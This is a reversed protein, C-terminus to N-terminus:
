LEAIEFQVGTYGAATLAGGYATCYCDLTVAQGNKKYEFSFTKGLLLGKMYEYEAETMLNYQLAFKHIKDRIFRVHMKGDDTTGSNEDLMSEVNETIQLHPEYIEFGDIKYDSTLENM